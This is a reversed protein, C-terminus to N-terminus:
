DNALKPKDFKAKKAANEKVEHEISAIIKLQEDESEVLDTQDLIEQLNYEKVLYKKTQFGIISTFASNVAYQLTSELATGAFGGVVSGITAAVINGSKSANEVMSSLVTNLSKGITNTASNVGYAVLANTLVTKYIKVMQPDSPRYGYLFVIDKILKLDYVLVFLTDLYESQSLATAVGVRVASKKIMKNAANKIDKQYIKALVEKLDKDNKTHRAIALKGVLEDSYWDINDTKTTVDIMKDAIEERLKKNYKKAQRVNSAKINTMFAKTNQLKLVPVMYFFIFILVSVATGIYGAISHIDFLRMVVFFLAVAILIGVAAALIFLFTKAAEINEPHTYKQQYEELSIKKTELEKKM